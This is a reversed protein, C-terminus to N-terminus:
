TFFPRHIMLVDNTVESPFIIATQITVLKPTIGVLEADSPTQVVLASMGVALAM